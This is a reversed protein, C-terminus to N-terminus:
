TTGGKGDIVGVRPFPSHCGQTPPRVASVTDLGTRM